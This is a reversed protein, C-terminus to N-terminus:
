ASATLRPRVPAAWVNSSALTRTSECIAPLPLRSDATLERDCHSCIVKGGAGKIAKRHADCAWCYYVNADFM